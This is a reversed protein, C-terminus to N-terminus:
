LNYTEFREVTQSPKSAANGDEGSEDASDEESAAEEDDTQIGDLDGNAETYEAHLSTPVEVPEIKRRKRKPEGLPIAKPKLTQLLLNYPKEKPDSGSDSSEELSLSEEAEEHSDESESKAGSNESNNNITEDVRSAQFPAGANGSRSGNRNNRGTM